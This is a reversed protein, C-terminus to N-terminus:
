TENVNSSENLEPCEPYVLPAALNGNVGGQCKARSPSLSPPPPTYRRHRLAGWAKQQMMSLTGCDEHPVHRTTPIDFKPARRLQEQVVAICRGVTGLKHFCLSDLGLDIRNRRQNCSPRDHSRHPPSYPRLVPRIVAASRCGWPMEPCADRQQRIQFLGNARDSSVCSWLPVCQAHSQSEGGLIRLSRLCGRCCIDLAFMFRDGICLECCILHAKDNAFCMSRSPDPLFHTSSQQGQPGAKTCRM